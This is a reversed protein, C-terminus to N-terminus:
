PGDELPVYRWEGARDKTAEDYHFEDEWWQQLIKTRVSMLYKGDDTPVQVVRDVFRLRNTPRMM